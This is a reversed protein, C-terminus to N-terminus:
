KKRLQVETNGTKLKIGDPLIIQIKKDDSNKIDEDSIKSTRIFEINKLTESNGIVTVKEPSITFNDKSYEVGQYDIKVPVTKTIMFDIHVLTSEKELRVDINQADKSFAKLVVAVSTEPENDKQVVSIDGSAYQVKNVLTRPGTIRVNNDDSKIDAIKSEMSTPIDLKIKVTKSIKKELNVALTTDRLERSVRNSINTRLSIINKGEVPNIIESYVHVNNSNLKQIESLKGKVTIDTRLSEKPFVVFGSNNVESINTITVPVNEIVKKEEPDVVAIVYMWLALATFLSIIKTKINKEKKIRTKKM